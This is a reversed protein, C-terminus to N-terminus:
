LFNIGAEIMLSKLRERADHAAKKAAALSISLREAVEKETLGTEYRMRLIMQQRPSLRPLLLRLAVIPESPSAPPESEAPGPVTLNESLPVGKRNAADDLRWYGWRSLWPLIQGGAAILETRLEPVLLRLIAEQFIDDVDADGYRRLLAHRRLRGQLRAGYRDLIQTIGGEPDREVLALLDEDTPVPLAKERQPPEPSHDM